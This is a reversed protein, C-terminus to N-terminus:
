KRTRYYNYSNMDEFIDIKYNLHALAMGLSKFEETFVEGETNDIAIFYGEDDKFIMNYPRSTINRNSFLTGRKSNNVNLEGLLEHFIKENIVKIIIM